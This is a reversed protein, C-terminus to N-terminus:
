DQAVGQVADQPVRGLIHRIHYPHVQRRLCMISDLQCKMDRTDSTEKRIESPQKGTFLQKLSDAWEHPAINSGLMRYEDDLGMMHGIEHALMEKDLPAVIFKDYEAGVFNVLKISYHADEPREVRVFRFRVGYAMSNTWIMEADNLAQDIHDNLHDETPYLVWRLDEKRELRAAKKLYGKSPRFHIRVEVTLSGQDSPAGAGSDPVEAIVDYRYKKKFFGHYIREGEIKYVHNQRIPFLNQWDWRKSYLDKEWNERDFFEAWKSKLDPDHPGVKKAMKVLERRTDPTAAIAPDQASATSIFFLSSILLIM